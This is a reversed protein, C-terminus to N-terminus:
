RHLQRWSRKILRHRLLKPGIPRQDTLVLALRHERYDKFYLPLRILSLM